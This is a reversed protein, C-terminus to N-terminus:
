QHALPRAEAAARSRPMGQAINVLLAQSFKELKPDSLAGMLSAEWHKREHQVKKGLSYTGLTPPQADRSNKEVENQSRSKLDLGLLSPM